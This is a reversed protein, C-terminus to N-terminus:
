TEGDANKIEVSDIFKIAGDFSAHNVALGAVKASKLAMVFWGTVSIDGVSKPAYRFGLKDSGEGQQHHETCYNIAKQAAAKTEAINAMGAAEALAMTCIAGPYGIGRHGGEDTTDFCLGNADQKSKDVKTQDMPSFGPPGAPAAPAATPPPPQQAQQAVAPAAAAMFAFSGAVLFIRRYSPSISM